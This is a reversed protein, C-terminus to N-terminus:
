SPPLGALIFIIDTSQYCFYDYYYDYDYYYFHYHHYYYYYFYYLRAVTM